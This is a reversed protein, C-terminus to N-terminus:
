CATGDYLLKNHRADHHFIAPPWPFLTSCHTYAKGDKTCQQEEMRTCQKRVSSPQIETLSREVRLLEKYENQHSTVFSKATVEQLKLKFGFTSAAM